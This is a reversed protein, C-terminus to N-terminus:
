HCDQATVQSKRILVHRLPVLTIILWVSPVKAHILYPSDLQVTTVTNIMVTDEHFFLFHWKWKLIVKTFCYFRNIKHLGQIKNLRKWIKQSLLSNCMFYSSCGWYLLTLLFLVQTITQTVLQFSWMKKWQFCKKSSLTVLLCAVTIRRAYKYM